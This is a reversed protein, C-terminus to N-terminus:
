LSGGIQALFRRADDPTPLDRVLGWRVAYLGTAGEAGDQRHLAHGRLAFSAQLTAFEKDTLEGAGGARALIAADTHGAPYNVSGAPMKKETHM